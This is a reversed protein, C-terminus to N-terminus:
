FRPDAPATVTLGDLSALPSSAPAHFVLSAARLAQHSFGDSPLPKGYKSDGLLPHGLRALVARIQHTRGTHLLVEILTRGTERRLVFVETVATLAGPRPSDFVEVRNEAENKKLYHTYLARDPKLDGRVWALYRKEVRRERIWENMERLAAANKACIVLGTTNRDIRNCLAPAFSNEADPCYEGKQFLYAKIHDILTGTKQVEDSHCSVGEAKDAILVNEDEYVVSLSPTLTRFRDDAGGFFEPALFCQVTDGEALRQDPEARRRNVKIKKTRIAKYLLSKPLSLTVKTVFQDLRQGADNPNVTFEKM